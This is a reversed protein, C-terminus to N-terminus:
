LFAFCLPHYAPIPKGVPELAAAGRDFRYVQIEDSLKHGVVVFREGPMFAFDRPARGALKAIGRRALRGTAADVDFFAISDHGRNSAALTLGDDTLRIAAAKTEGAFGDPLMSVKCVRRWSGGERAFSAVSNGLENVVFLFRGDKSWAAHRPGDGPDSRLRMAVDEALTDLDLFHIRDCGLNVVGLRAADPTAFAFHAYAKKQRLPNPGVGEDSLTLGRVERSGIDVTAAVGAGYAAYALRREGPLLAVHCPAPCPLEALTEMKGLAHGEIPFRVAKGRLNRDRENGVMTYLWRRASDVAFYTTGSVGKVTQVVRAEGTETDCALVHIAQMDASGPSCGVACYAISAMIMNM